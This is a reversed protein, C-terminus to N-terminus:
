TWTIAAHRQGDAADAFVNKWVPRPGSAAAFMSEPHDPRSHFTSINEIYLPLLMVGRLGPHPALHRRTPCMTM